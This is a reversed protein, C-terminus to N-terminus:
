SLGVWSGAHLKPDAGARHDSRPGGRPVAERAIGNTITTRQAKPCRQCRRRMPSPRRSRLALRGLPGAAWRFRHVRRRRICLEKCSILESDAHDEVVYHDIRDGEDGKPRPEIYVNAM